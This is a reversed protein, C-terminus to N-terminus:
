DNYLHPNVRRDIKFLLDYLGVINSKAEFDEFVQRVLLFEQLPKERSNEQDSFAHSPIM